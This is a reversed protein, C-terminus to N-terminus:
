KAARKRMFAILANMDANNSQLVTAYEHAEASVASHGGLVLDDIRWSQGEPRMQWIWIQDAKGPLTRRSAALQHGDFPPRHGIFTLTTGPARMRRLYASVVDEEFAQLFEEREEETATNWTRGLADKGMAPLDFAWALLARCRERADAESGSAFFGVSAENVKEIFARIADNDDEAATAPVVVWTLVFALLLTPMFRAVPEASKSRDCTANFFRSM